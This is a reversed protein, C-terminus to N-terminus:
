RSLLRKRARYLHSKVADLTTGRDRAIDHISRHQLHHLRFLAWQVPTLDRQAARGIRAIRERCEYEELPSFPRRALWSSPEARPPECGSGSVTGARWRRRAENALTRRAVGYVWALFPAEARYSHISRFVNIFIEQVTDETDARNPFRRAAFRYVRAFYRRYIARFAAEDGTQIRAVLSEDTAASSADRTGTHPVAM